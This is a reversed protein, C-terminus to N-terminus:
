HESISSPSVAAPQAKWVPGDSRHPPYPRGPTSDAPMANSMRFVPLIPNGKADKDYQVGDIEQLLTAFSEGGPQEGIMIEIPYSEGAEVTIADGKAFGNPIRSFGYDYNAQPRWSTRPAWSRDLVLRGNFKVLMVDDGAGVFHFTFSDPATVQGKYYVCWM